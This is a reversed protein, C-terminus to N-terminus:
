KVAERDVREGTQVQIQGVTEQVPRAGTGLRVRPTGGPLVRQGGVQNKITVSEGGVESTEVWKQLRRGGRFDGGM